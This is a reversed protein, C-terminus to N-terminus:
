RTPRAQLTSSLAILQTSYDLDRIDLKFSECVHKLSNEIKQASKRKVFLKFSEKAKANPTQDYLTSVFIVVLM